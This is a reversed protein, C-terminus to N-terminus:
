LAGFCMPPSQIKYSINLAAERGGADDVVATVWRQAWGTIADDLQSFTKL